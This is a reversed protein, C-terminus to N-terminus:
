VALGMGYLIICRWFERKTHPASRQGPLLYGCHERNHHEHSASQRTCSLPNDLKVWVTSNSLPGSIFNSGQLSEGALVSGTTNDWVATVPSTAQGTFLMSKADNTYGVRTCEIQTYDFTMGINYAYLTQGTDIKAWVTVNFLDGVYPHAATNFSFSDPVLWFAPVAPESAHVAPMIMPMAGLLMATVLVTALLKSLGKNM